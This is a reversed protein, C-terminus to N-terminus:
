RLCPRLELVPAQRAEWKGWLTIATGATANGHDSLDWNLGPAPADPVFVRYSGDQQEDPWIDWGCPDEQAVLPTGDKSSGNFGIYQNQNSMVRFIWKGKDNKELRFQLIFALQIDTLLVSAVLAAGDIASAPSSVRVKQNDGNKDTYGSVTMNDMGSVDVITGTKANVIKYTQGEQLSM